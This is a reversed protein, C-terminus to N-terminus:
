ISALMFIPRLMIFFGILAIPLIRLTLSVPLVPTMMSICPMDPLIITEGAGDVFTWAGAAPTAEQAAAPRLRAALALASGAALLSRRRIM